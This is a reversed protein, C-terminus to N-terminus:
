QLQASNLKKEKNELVRERSQIMQLYQVFALGFIVQLIGSVGGGGDLAKFSTPVFGFKWCRSYNLGDKLTPVTPNFLAEKGDQVM